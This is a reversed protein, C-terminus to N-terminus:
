PRGILERVKDLLDNGVFPKHLWHEVGREALERQNQETLHASIVVVPTDTENILVSIADVGDMRGMMLDMTVLDFSHNSIQSLAEAGDIAEAVRYGSRTLIERLIRRVGADDDVVLIHPNAM